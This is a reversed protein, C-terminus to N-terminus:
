VKTYVRKGVRREESRTSFFGQRCWPRPAPMYLGDVADLEIPADEIAERIVRLALDREPVSHTGNPVTGIGAVTPTVADAM